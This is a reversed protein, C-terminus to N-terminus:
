VTNHERTEFIQANVVSCYANNDNNYHIMVDEDCWVELIPSRLCFDESNLSHTKIYQKSTLHWFINNIKWFNVDLQDLNVSCQLPVGSSGM